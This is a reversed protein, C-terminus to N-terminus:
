ETDTVDTQKYVNHMPGIKALVAKLRESMHVGDRYQYPWMHRISFVGVHDNNHLPEDHAANLGPMDSLVSNIFVYGRDTETIGFHELLDGLCSGSPLTVVQQAVLSGGAKIAIDGYISIDIQIFHNNEPM